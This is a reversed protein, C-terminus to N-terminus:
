KPCYSIYQNSQTWKPVPTADDPSWHAKSTVQLMNKGKQSLEVQYRGKGWSVDWRGPMEWIRLRWLFKPDVKVAEHMTREPAGHLFGVRICVAKAKKKLWLALKWSNRCESNQLVKMMPHLSPEMLSFGTVCAHLVSNPTEAGVYM